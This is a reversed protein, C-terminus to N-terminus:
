RKRQRKITPETSERELGEQRLGWQLGLMLVVVMMFQHSFTYETLGWVLAALFVGIFAHDQRAAQPDKPGSRLVAGFYSLIWALYAALGLWGNQVLVQLFNNHLHGVTAEQAEPLRYGPYVKEMNGQGIGFIPHDRHIALGAKWVAVREMNSYSLKSDWISRVREKLPAPLLLAGVLTFALGWGLMKRDVKWSYWLFGAAFGFWAGRTQTLILGVLVLLLLTWSPIKRPAEKVRHLALLSAIMLLGGFVMWHGSFSTIRAQIGAAYKGIGWAACFASGAVFALLVADVRRADLRMAALPIWALLILYKFVTRSSNNPDVGMAAGAFYTGVFLLTAIVFPNLPWSVSKRSRRQELIWIGLAAWLLNQLAISVTAVAAFAFLLLFSLPPKENM